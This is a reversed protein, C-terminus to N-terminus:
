LDDDSDDSSSVMRQKLAAIARELAKRKGISLRLEDRIEESSLDLLALGDVEGQTCRVHLYTM